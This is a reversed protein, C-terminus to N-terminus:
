LSIVTGVHFRSPNRLFEIDQLQWGYDVRLQVNDRFSYRMGVGYGMLDVNDAEGPLPTHLYTNGVDFFTLFRLAHGSSCSNCDSQQGHRYRQDYMTSTCSTQCCQNSCNGDGFTIARTWLELNVFYASDGVVSYFDYGRISNYGGLGLVETPLLNGESLQGVFRTVFELDDSVAEHYELFGRTYFYSPDAFPRITNYTSGTSGGSITGPSYFGQLGLYYASGDGTESGQYGVMLQSVDGTSDFVNFGGLDINTNARKFDYGFILNHQYDCIEELEHTYRFLLQWTNGENAQVLPGPFRTSYEAYSGFVTLNDRNFFDHSYFFSHAHLRSFRSDTMYQYNFNDDTGFADFWNFGYFTRERGTVINGTDEYGSYLKFPLRDDVNFVVDTQGRADGPRLEVTVDRFPDRALWELDEMVMSEFVPQGPCLFIQDALVQADFYCPGEVRIRGVRGETVVLQIVGNSIEQQPISVDVVPRNNKRYYIIIDRIMVNLNQISIPQGLHPQIVRRFSARKLLPLRNSRVELGL